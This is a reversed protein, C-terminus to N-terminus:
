NMKKAREVILSLRDERNDIRGSVIVVNSEKWNDKEAFIKPFVVCEIKGGAKGEITVFAM